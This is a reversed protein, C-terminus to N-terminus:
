ALHAPYRQRKMRGTLSSVVCAQCASCFAADDPSTIRCTPFSARKTLALDHACDFVVVLGCLASTMGSVPPARTRVAFLNKMM